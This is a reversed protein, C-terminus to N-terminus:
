RNMTMLVALLTILNMGILIGVMVLLMRLDAKPIWVYTGSLKAASKADPTSHLDRLAVLAPDHIVFTEDGTKLRPLIGTKDEDM